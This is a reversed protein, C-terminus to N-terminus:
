YTSYASGDGSSTDGGDQANTIFDNWVGLRREDPGQLTLSLPLWVALAILAGAAFRAHATTVCLRKARVSDIVIKLILGIAIIAPCVQMLASWTLAAGSLMMRGRKAFCLALFSSSCGTTGFFPAALYFYRSLYNAGM